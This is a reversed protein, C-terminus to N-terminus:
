PDSVTDNWSVSPVCLCGWTTQHSTMTIISPPKHHDDDDDDDNNDDGVVNGDDDDDNDADNDDGDDDYLSFVLWLDNNEHQKIISM